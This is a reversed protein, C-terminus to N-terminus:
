RKRQRIMSRWELLLITQVSKDDHTYAEVDRMKAAEADALQKKPRAM